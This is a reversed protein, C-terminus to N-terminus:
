HLMGTTKVIRPGEPTIAVTDVIGSTEEHSKQMRSIRGTLAAQYSVQYFTAVRQITMGSIKFVITDFVRFSNGLTTELDNVDSGDAAQWNRALFQTVGRLNRSQYATVFDRYMAQIAQTDRQLTAADVHSAVERLRPMLGDLQGMLAQITPHNKVSADVAAKTYGITDMWQQASSWGGMAEPNGLFTNIGDIAGKLSSQAAALRQRQYYASSMESMLSIIAGYAVSVRSKPEVKGEGNARQYILYADNSYRNSENMFANNDLGQLRGSDAQFKKLLEEMAPAYRNARAVPLYPDVLAHYREALAAYREILPGSGLGSDPLQEPPVIQNRLQLALFDAPESYDGLVVEKFFYPVEEPFIPTLKDRMASLAADLGSEAEQTGKYAGAYRDRASDISALQRIIASKLDGIGDKTLVLNKFSYGPMGPIQSLAETDLAEPTTLSEIRKELAKLGTDSIGYNGMMAYIQGGSIDLNGQQASQLERATVTLKDAKDKITKVGSLAEVIKNTLELNRGASEVLQRGADEGDKAVAAFATEFHSLRDYENRVHEFDVMEPDYGYSGESRFCDWIEVNPQLKQGLQTATSALGTVMGASRKAADLRKQFNDKLAKADNQWGQLLKESEALQKVTPSWLPFPVRVDGASNSLAYQWIAMALWDGHQGEMKVTHDEGWIVMDVENQGWKHLSQGFSHIPGDALAIEDQYLQSLTGRVQTEFQRTIAGAARNAHDMTAPCTDLGGCQPWCSFSPNHRPDGYCANLCANLRKGSAECSAYAAAYIPGTLEALKTQAGSLANWLAAQYSGCSYEGHALKQWADRMKSAATGFDYNSDTPFSVPDPSKSWENAKTMTDNLELHRKWSRIDEELRKIDTDVGSKLRALEKHQEVLAKMLQNLQSIAVNGSQLIMQSHKMIILDDSLSGEKAALEKNESRLYGAIAMEDLSITWNFKQVAAVSGDKAKGVNQTIQGTMSNPFKENLYDSIREFAFDTAFESIHETPIVKTFNLGAKFAAKTTNNINTTRVKNMIDDVSKQAERLAEFSKSIKKMDADLIASAEKDKEIDKTAKDILRQIEASPDYDARCPASALIGILSILLLLASLFARFKM